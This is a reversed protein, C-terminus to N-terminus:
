PMEVTAQIIVDGEAVADVSDMGRVVEGFVTFNHDLSLNDVLNIFIQGDGTDRGRTSTGLTGRWHSLLGLEDRTYAADGAYENAGPSGGQLVFNTVVRHFTLGDFYGSAALSEFRASHTPAVDAFLRIEIQGGRAMALIVRVGNLRDIDEPSPVPVRGVPVPQVVRPEGMWDSLIAATRDAVVPDYDRVYRSLELARDPGGLEAIRNLLAMRPDRATQRQELSIRGLAVLLPQIVPGPNATGELLGAVTVLLFPDDQDLQSVLVSDAAHGRLGFLGQVAATRVNPSSDAALSGLADVDGVAAAARAGYARVFANPHETFAALLPEAVDPSVSALAMLAHAARHWGLLPNADGIEAAMGSLLENQRARNECPQGLLDLAAVAVHADADSAASFLLPCEQRDPAMAAYSKVAEVRVRASVDGLALILLPINGNETSERGMAMVALRRVDADPDELVLSMLAEGVEGFGTLAMLAVRRVRAVSESGTGDSGRGFTTLTRLRAVTRLRTMVSASSAEAPQRRAMAELGMVAGLVTSGLADSDGERTLGVLTEEARALRDMDRYTLRGLTRAVVGKVDPSVERELHDFLLDAVDDGDTRFVAQGLANVAESRVEADSSSLHPAIRLIDDPDEHRGFARLSLAQLGPDPSSLGERLFQIGSPGAGRADDEDIVAVWLQLDVDPVDPGDLPVEDGEACGWSLLVAALAWRFTARWRPETGSGVMRARPTM